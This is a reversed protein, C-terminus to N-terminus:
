KVARVLYHTARDLNERELMRNEYALYASQAPRLFRFYAAGRFHSEIEVDRWNKFHPQLESYTCDDYKARFVTDPPRRLLKEMAFKGVSEPIVRNIAAFAANRSSLMAVFVGGPKLYRHVNDIATATSEVHELVQWSVAVDVQDVLAPLFQEVPAVVTESYAGPGAIALESGSLDLGIYRCCEPRQAIPIAPKRGSGIDLVVAGTDLAPIKAYFNALWDLSYREPLHNTTSKM